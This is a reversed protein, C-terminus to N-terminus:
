GDSFCGSILLNYDFMLLINCGMTHEKLIYLLKEQSVSWVKIEGNILGCAILDENMKEIAYTYYKQNLVKIVELTTIDWLIVKFDASASAIINDSYKILDIVSSNHGYIRNKYRIDYFYESIRSKKTGIFKLKMDCKRRVYNDLIISQNPCKDPHYDNLYYNNLVKNIIFKNKM